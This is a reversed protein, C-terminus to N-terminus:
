RWRALESLGSDGLGLEVFDCFSGFCPGSPLLFEHILLRLELNEDVVFAAVVPALGTGADTDFDGGDLGPLSNVFGNTAADGGPGFSMLFGSAGADTGGALGLPCVKMCLANRRSEDLPPALM